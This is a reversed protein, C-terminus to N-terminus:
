SIFGITLDFKIVFGIFLMLFIFIFKILEIIVPSLCGLFIDGLKDAMIISVQSSSGVIDQDQEIEIKANKWLTGAIVFFVALIVGASTLSFMLGIIGAINIFLSVIAILIILLFVFLRVFRTSQKTILSQLALYDPLAEGNWIDQNSFSDDLFTSITQYNKSIVLMLIAAMFFIISIGFLSGSIFEPNLVSIEFINLIISYDFNFLAIDKITFNVLHSLNLELAVRCTSLILFLLFIPLLVILIVAMLIKFIATVTSSISDLHNFYNKQEAPYVFMDALGAVQDLSAKSFVHPYIPFYSVFLLLTILGLHFLDTHINFHFGFLLFTFVILFSFILAVIFTILFSFYFGKSISPVVGLANSQILNKIVPSKSNLCFWLVLFLLFSFVLGICILILYASDIVGLGFLLFGFWFILLDFCLMRVVIHQFYSTAKLFKSAGFEVLVLALIGFAVIKIPLLILIFSNFKDIIIGNIGGFIAIFFVSLSLSSMFTVISSYTHKLHDGIFDSVSAANRIDNEPLDYNTYGILDAATDSSVGISSFALRSIFSHICLGFLYGALIILTFLNEKNMYELMNESNVQMIGFIEMIFLRIGFGDYILVLKFLTLLFLIEIVLFSVIVVFLLYAPNKSSFLLDDDNHDRYNLFNIAFKLSYNLSLYGVGVSTFLSLFMFLIKLFHASLFIQVVIFFVFFFAVVVGLLKMVSRWTNRVGMQVLDFVIKQNTDDLDYRKVRRFFQIVLALLTILFTIALLKFESYIIDISVIELYETQYPINKIAIWLGVVIGTMIFTVIFFLPRKIADMM